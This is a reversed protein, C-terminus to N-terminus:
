VFAEFRDVKFSDACAFFFRDHNVGRGAGEIQINTRHNGRKQVTQKELSNQALRRVFFTLKLIQRIM